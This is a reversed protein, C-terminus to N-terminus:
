RTSTYADDRHYRCTMAIVSDTPLVRYLYYFTGIRVITGSMKKFVFVDKRDWHKPKDVSPMSKLSDKQVRKVEAGTPTSRFTRKHKHFHCDVQAELGQM